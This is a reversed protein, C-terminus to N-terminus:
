KQATAERAAYDFSDLGYGGQFSAVELEVVGGGKVSSSQKKACGAILAAALM